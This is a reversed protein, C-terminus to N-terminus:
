CKRVKVKKLANINIRSSTYVVCSQDLACLILLYQKVASIHCSCFSVRCFVARFKHNKQTKLSALFLESVIKYLKHLFIKSVTSLPHGCM